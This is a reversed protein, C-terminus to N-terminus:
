YMFYIICVVANFRIDSSVEIPLDFMYYNNNINLECLMIYKIYYNTTRNKYSVRIYARELRKM